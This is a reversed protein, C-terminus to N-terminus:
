LGEIAEGVALLANILGGCIKLMAAIISTEIEGQSTASYWFMGGLCDVRRPFSCGKSLFLADM